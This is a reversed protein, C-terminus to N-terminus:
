PQGSPQLPIVEYICLTRVHLPVFYKQIVDCIKDRSRKLFIENTALKQRGERYMKKQFATYAEDDEFLLWGKKNSADLRDIHMEYSLLQPPPLYVKIVSDSRVIRLSSDQLNVGYKATYPASIRVTREIFLRRLEDTFSGDNALNSSTLTTIGKVELSALEAIEKVFSYNDILQTNNQRPTFYKAISYGVFVAAAIIVLWFLYRM